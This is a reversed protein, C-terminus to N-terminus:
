NVTNLWSYHAPWITRGGGGVARAGRAAGPDSFFKRSLFPRPVLFHLSFLAPCQFIFSSFHNILVPCPLFLTILLGPCGFFFHNGRPPGSPFPLLVIQSACLRIWQSRMMTRLEFSLVKCVFFFVYLVLTATYHPRRQELPFRLYMESNDKTVMCLYILHISYTHILIISSHYRVQIDIIM